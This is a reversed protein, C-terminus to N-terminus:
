NQAEVGNVWKNFGSPLQWVLQSRTAEEITEFLLMNEAFAQAQTPGSELVFPKDIGSFSWLLPSQTYWLLIYICNGRTEKKKKRKEQGIKTSDLPLHSLSGCYGKVSLSESKPSSSDQELGGWWKKLPVPPPPFYPFSWVKNVTCDPNSGSM